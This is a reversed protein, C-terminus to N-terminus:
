SGSIKQFICNWFPFIAVCLPPFSLVIELFLFHVYRPLGDKIKLM